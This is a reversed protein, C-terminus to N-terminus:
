RFALWIAPAALIGILALALALRGIKHLTGIQSPDKRPHRDLWARFRALWKGDFFGDLPLYM